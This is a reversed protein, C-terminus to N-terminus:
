SGTVIPDVHFEPDESRELHPVVLGRDSNGADLFASQEDQEKQVRVLRDRDVTQDVLQPVPPRRRRCALRNLHPDGRQAPPQAGVRDLRTAVAVRDHDAVILEIEM